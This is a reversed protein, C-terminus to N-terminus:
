KNLKNIQEQLGDIMMQQKHCVALLLGINALPDLAKMGDSNTNVGSPMLKEFEQAIVGYEFAKGELVATKDVDVGDEGPESYTYKNDKFKYSVPRTARIIELAKDQDADEINEKLREDSDFFNMGKTAGDVKLELYTSQVGSFVLVRNGVSYSGNPVRLVGTSDFNLASLQTSNSADVIRVDFGGVGSGKNIVISGRGDTGNENWLIHTGQQDVNMGRGITSLGSSARVFSSTTISASSTIGGANALPINNMNFSGSTTNRALNMNGASVSFDYVTAEDSTSVGLVGGRSRWSGAKVSAFGSSMSPAVIQIRGAADNIIRTDYDATTNNYHFDIFPTAAFLELRGQGVQVQGSGDVVNLQGSMTDGAKNVGGLNSLATAATGSGTGGNAVPLIGTVGPSVNASGDFTGATTSALNTIFTRGTALVTASAALGTTNGTGGNAISLPTTLSLTSAALSGSFTATTGSLAGSLTTAGASLAGTLSASVGTLAGTLTATVAQVDGTVALDKTTAKTQLTITDATVAGTFTGTTATLAGTSVAGTFTATTGNLNGTLTGGTLALASVDAPTLTINSSLAKGNVTRAMPVYASDSQPKTLIQTWSSSQNKGYISFTGSETMVLKTTNGNDVNAIGLLDTGTPNQAQTSPVKLFSNGSPTLSEYQPIDVGNAGVGYDGLKLDAMETVTGRAIVDEATFVYTKKVVSNQNGSLTASSVYGSLIAYHQIVSTLSEYLSVKIQFKTQSTFM